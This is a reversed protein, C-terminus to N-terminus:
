SPTSPRGCAEAQRKLVELAHDDIDRVHVNSMGAGRTLCGARSRLPIVIIDSRRNPTSTQRAELHLPLPLGPRRPRATGNHPDTVVRGRSSGAGLLAPPRNSVAPGHGAVGVPEFHSGPILASGRATAEGARRALRRVAEGPEASGTSIPVSSFRRRNHDTGSHHRNGAAGTTIPVVAGYPADLLPTSPIGPRGRRDNRPCEPGNEVPCPVPRWSRRTGDRSSRGACRRARGHGSRADRCGRPGRRGPRRDARPPRSACSVTSSLSGCTSSTIRWAISSARAPRRGRHHRHHPRSRTAPGPTAGTSARARPTLAPHRRPDRPDAVPRAGTPLPPADRM